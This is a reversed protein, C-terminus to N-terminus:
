KELSHKLMRITEQSEQLEMEYGVIKEKAGVVAVEAEITQPSTFHSSLSNTIYPSISTSHPLPTEIQKDLFNM